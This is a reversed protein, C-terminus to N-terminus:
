VINILTAACATAVPKHQFMASVQIGDATRKTERWREVKFPASYGDKWFTYLASPTKIRPVPPVYYLFAVDTWIFAMTTTDLGEQATNEVGGAVLVTEVNFLKALMDPTVSEASTYKIRDVVSVHEKAARFQQDTLILRNPTTGSNLLILSSLSDIMTIPNSTTTNSSWALTATASADMSLSWNATTQVVTAVDKERRLLITQTLIETTDADPDIPSDANDRLRDSVYDHLSHETLIYTSSSMNWHRQNSEANMARITEPINMTDRSYVYYFDSERKVPVKPAVLDAILGTPKYQISINELARDRHMQENLVPM